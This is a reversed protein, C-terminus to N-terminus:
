VCLTTLLTCVSRECGPWLFLGVCSFMAPWLPAASGATHLAATSVSCCKRRCQGLNLFTRSDYKLLNPWFCGCKIIEWTSWSCINIPSLFSLETRAPCNIEAQWLMLPHCEVGPRVTKNQKIKIIIRLNYHTKHLKEKYVNLKIIINGNNRYTCIYM